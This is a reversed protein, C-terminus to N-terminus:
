ETNHVDVGSVYMNHQLLCVATINTIVVLLVAGRLIDCRDYCQYNCEGGQEIANVQQVACVCVNCTRPKPAYPCVDEVGNEREMQTPKPVM